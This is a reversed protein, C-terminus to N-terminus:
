IAGSEYLMTFAEVVEDRTAYPGYDEDRSWCTATIWWKDGYRKVIAFNTEIPKDTDTAWEMRLSLSSVDRWTIM